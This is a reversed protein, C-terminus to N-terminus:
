SSLVGFVDKSEEEADMVKVVEGSAERIDKYPKLLAKATKESLHPSQVERFGDSTKLIMRGPNEIKEAGPTGIVKANVKDATKFGMRATLNVKLKGDLLESDPRQMSLILFIGLSRGISSIEELIDMVKKEKKLLAVEDVCVLYYPLKKQLDDIHTVEEADLMNGRRIMERKLKRLVPEFELASHYVGEVHDINKFLHFESRKLDALIMRLEKPSKTKILTTLMSRLQSSKGSGTEGAILLHPQKAMDFVFYEKGLRKGCIVPLKMDEIATKIEEFNYAFEAPLQDSYINLICKKVDVKLSVNGFAQKFAYLKKEVDEPNLGLPLTFVVTIRENKIQVAHIKPFTINNQSEKRFLGGYKFVQHLQGKTKMKIFQKQQFSWGKKALPTVMWATSGVATVLGIEVIM